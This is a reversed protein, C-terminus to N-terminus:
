KDKPSYIAHHFITIIPLFSLITWKPRELDKVTYIHSTNFSYLPCTYTYTYTLLMYVCESQLCVMSPSNHYARRDHIQRDDFLVHVHTICLM